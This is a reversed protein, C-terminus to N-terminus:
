ECSRKQKRTWRLSYFIAANRATTTIKDDPYDPTDKKLRGQWSPELAKKEKHIYNPTTLM